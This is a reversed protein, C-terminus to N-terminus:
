VIILILSFKRCLLLLSISLLLLGKDIMDFLSHRKSLLGFLAPKDKICANFEPVVIKWDELQWAEKLLNVWIPVGGHKVAEFCHVVAEDTSLERGLLYVILKVLFHQYEGVQRNKKGSVKLILCFISLGDSDTVSEQGLL